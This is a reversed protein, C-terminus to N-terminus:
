DFFYKLIFEKITIANKYAQQADSLILDDFGDPYRTDVGFDSLRFAIAFIEEFRPNLNLCIKLLKQLDHTKPFEKNRAVLYAKIYKEAAQQAHYCCQKVPTDELAIINKIIFLDEEASKFWKEFKKM